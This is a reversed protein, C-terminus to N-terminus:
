SGGKLHSVVSPTSDDGWIYSLAKFVPMEDLNRVVLKCTVAGDKSDGSFQLLRIERTKRNLAPHKFNRNSNMTTTFSSVRDYM